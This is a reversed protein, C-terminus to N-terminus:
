HWDGPTLHTYIPYKSRSQLFLYLCHRAWHKTWQWELLICVEHYLCDDLSYLSGAGSSAGFPQIMKLNKMPLSQFHGPLAPGTSQTAAASVQCMESGLSGPLLSQSILPVPPPKSSLLFPSALIYWRGKQQTELLQVLAAPDGENREKM